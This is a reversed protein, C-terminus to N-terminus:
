DSRERIRVNRFSSFFEFPDDSFGVFEKNVLVPTEKVFLPVGPPDDKLAIALDKEAKKRVEPNPNYRIEDLLRDVEPNNYGGSNGGKDILSSHWFLYQQPMGSRVNSSILMLDYDRNIFGKAILDKYSPVAEYEVSIGVQELNDKIQKVVRQSVEDDAAILFNVRFVQGNKDLFFDGDSDRWGEENLSKIAKKLNDMESLSSFDDKHYLVSGDASNNKSFVDIGSMAALLSKRIGSNKLLPRRVNLLVWYQTEMLFQGAEFEQINEFVDYDFMGTLIILDADGAILKSLCTRQNPYIDVIVGDLFPRGLFYDQNAELEIHEPSFSRLRFPGSGIVPLSDIGREIFKAPVIHVANLFFPFFSDYNKLKIRLVTASLVEIRDINAFGFSYVGGQRSM